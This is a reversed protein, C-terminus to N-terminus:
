ATRGFHDSHLPLQQCEKRTRHIQMGALQHVPGAYRQAQGKRGTGAHFLQRTQSLGPRKQRDAHLPVATVKGSSFGPDHLPHGYM